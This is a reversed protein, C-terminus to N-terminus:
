LKQLERMRKKPEMSKYYELKEAAQTRQEPTLDPRQTITEWTQRRATLEQKALTGFGAVFMGNNELVVADEFSLDPRRTLELLAQIAQKREQSRYGSAYCLALAAEQAQAVTTDPWRAQELLMETARQHEKSGKPSQLYLAHAAEVTDHFPIDRRQALKLLIEIAEEREDSGPDSLSYLASAVEIADSALIDERRVLDLLLQMVWQRAQSAPKSRKYVVWLADTVKEITIDPDHAAKLLWQIAEKKTKPEGLPSRQRTGQGSAANKQILAICAQTIERQINQDM